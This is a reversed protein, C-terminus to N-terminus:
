IGVGEYRKLGRKWVIKIIVYLILIWATQVFLGRVGTAIDIKNLYIQAPVFFSYAFPLSFSINVFAVPLLSLPFYGGSFFKKLRDITTHIGNVEDTWFAILGILYSILLETIFALIIMVIILALNLVSVNFIFIKLFFLIIIMQSLISMFFTLSIRGIERAMVYRFYEIPKVLFQSLSGERIDRAIVEALWNRVVANILNGVLIYTIMEPLTYGKIIDHQGYIASWMFILVVMEIIEGIRYSFVTFRYILARQWTIKIIAIYKRFSGM